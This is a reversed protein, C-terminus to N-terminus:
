HSLFLVSDFRSLFQTVTCLVGFKAWSLVGLCAYAFGPRHQASEVRGHAQQRARETRRHEHQRAGWRGARRPGHGVDAHMRRAWRRGQAGM